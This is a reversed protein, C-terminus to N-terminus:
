CTITEWFGAQQSRIETRRVKTWNLSWLVENQGWQFIFDKQNVNSLKESVTKERMEQDTTRKKREGWWKSHLVEKKKELWPVSIQSINDLQQCRAENICAFGTTQTGWGGICCRELTIDQYINLKNRRIEWGFFLRLLRATFSHEREWTTGWLLYIYPSSEESHTECDCVETYDKSSVSQSSFEGHSWGM